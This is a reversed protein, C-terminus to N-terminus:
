KTFFKQVLLDLAEAVDSCRDLSIDVQDPSPSSFRHLRAFRGQTIASFGIGAGQKSIRWLITDKIQQPLERFTAGEAELNAYHDAIFTHVANGLIQVDTEHQKTRDFAEKAVAGRSELEELAATVQLLESQLEAARQRLETLEQVRQGDIKKADRILNITENIDDSLATFLDELQEQSVTASGFAHNVGIVTAGPFASGPAPKPVVRDSPRPAFLEARRTSEAEAAKKAVQTVRRSPAAQSTKEEVPYLYDSRRSAAKVATSLANSAAEKNDSSSEETTM